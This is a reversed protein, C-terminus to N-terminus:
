GYTDGETIGLWESKDLRKSCFTGDGREVAIYYRTSGSPFTVGGSVVGVGPKYETYTKTVKGICGSGAVGEEGGCGVLLLVIAIVAMVVAAVVLGVTLRDRIQVFIV